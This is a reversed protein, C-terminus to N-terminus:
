PVSFREVLPAVGTLDTAESVSAAVPGFGLFPVPNRTHNRTSLDELNGHDSVVLLSDNERLEDICRSLFVGLDRVLKTARDHDQDHAAKDTLFYEYLSFDWARAAESLRRGAEDPSLLPVELGRSRPLSNTFDHYLARGELMDDFTHFKLSAAQAATTTSALKRYGRPIEIAPEHVRRTPTYPLGVAELYPVHFANLFGVRRDAARLRLFVNDDRLFERLAANPFGLLHRGLHRAANRGTLITSQGTASQPRGEVGLTADVLQMRGNRPLPLASRGDSFHSLVTRVAALPNHAPDDVGAGIGDIFVLLLM